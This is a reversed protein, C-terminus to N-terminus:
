NSTVVESQIPHYRQQQQGGQKGALLQCVRSPRLECDKNHGTESSPAVALNIAKSGVLWSLGLARSSGTAQTAFSTAKSESGPREALM